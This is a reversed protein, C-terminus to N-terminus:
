RAEWVLAGLFRPPEVPPIEPLDGVKNGEQYKLWRTRVLGISHAQRTPPPNASHKPASPGLRGGSPTGRRRLLAARGDASEDM